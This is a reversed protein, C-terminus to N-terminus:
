RRCLRGGRLEQAGRDRTRGPLVHPNVVSLWRQATKVDVEVIAALEDVDMGADTIAKRLADNSM